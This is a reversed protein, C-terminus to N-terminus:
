QPQREDLFEASVRDMANPGFRTILYSALSFLIWFGSFLRLQYLQFQYYEAASLERIIDGHNSLYHRGNEM